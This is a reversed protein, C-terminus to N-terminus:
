ICSGNRTEVFKKLDAMKSTTYKFVEKDKYSEVLFDGEIHIAKRDTIKITDGVIKAPRKYTTGTPSHYFTGLETFTIEAVKKGEYHLDIPGSSCESFYLIKDIEIVSLSEDRLNQVEKGCDETKNSLYLVVAFLIISSITSLISLKNTNM